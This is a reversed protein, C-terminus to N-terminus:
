GFNLRIVQKSSPFTMTCQGWVAYSGYVGSSATWNYTGNPLHFKAPGSGVARSITVPYHVFPSSGSTIAVTWEAGTHLGQQKFVLAVTLLKFKVTKVLDHGLMRLTGKSPLVKYEPPGTIDFWFKGGSVATIGLYPAFSTYCSPTPIENRVLVRAWCVTWATGPPLQFRPLSSLTFALSELHGYTIKVSGSGNAWIGGGWGWSTDMEVPGSIRAVSYTSAASYNEPEDVGFPLYGTPVMASMVSGKIRAGDLVVTSSLNLTDQGYGIHVTWTYGAPLGIERFTWPGVLPKPTMEIEVSVNSGSVTVTGSAPSSTYWMDDLLSFPYTGNSAEVWIVPWWSFFWVGGVSVGWSCGQPLSTAEFSIMYSPGVTPVISLTGQLLNTVYLAHEAPVPVVARPQAGVPLWSVISNTGADVVTLNGSDANAVYLWGTTREFVVSAPSMGVPLQGIATDTLVDVVTLNNSCRNAVYLRGTTPVYAMASPCDGVAISGVVTFSSINIISVNDSGYNAVYLYGHETDIAIADPSAGVAIRTVISDTSENIVVVSGPSSDIAVYVLGHPGDYAIAGSAAGLYIGTSVTNTAPDIVALTAINESIAYLTNNSSGFAFGNMGYWVPIWDVVHNTRPDVVTINSSFPNAVYLYGNTGDYIAAGPSYGIPTWAVVTNTDGDITAISNTDPNVAYVCGSASNVALAAIYDGIGVQEEVSNNTGDIVALTYGYGGSSGAAYVYGDASNYALAYPFMPLDITETVNNTSGSVVALEHEFPLAVYVTGSATNSTVADPYSSVDISAVVSNTGDDIVSLSDSYSNAVYVLGNEPNFTLSWPYSGVPIWAAITGTAADIVTVNDSWANAVYMLGSVPSFVIATPGSGVPISGLVANSAGDIVTVNGSQSNAVFLHGNWSDYAIAQPYVGVPITAVVSNSTENIVVVSNTLYSTVYLLGNADDHVISTPQIGNGALFNGPVLSDNLLVLTSQVEPPPHLVTPTQAIQSALMPQRPTLPAFNGYDSRLYEQGGVSGWGPTLQPSADAISGVVSTSDPITREDMAFVLATSTAMLVVAMVATFRCSARSWGVRGHM